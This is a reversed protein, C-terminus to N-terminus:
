DGIGLTHAKISTATKFKNTDIMFIDSPLRFMTTQLIRKCKNIIFMCFDNLMTLLGKSHMAVCRLTFLWM